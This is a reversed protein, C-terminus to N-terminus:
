QIGTAKSTSVQKVSEYPKLLEIIESNGKERAWWFVSYVVDPSENKDPVVGHSLLKRLIEVNGKGVAQRLADHAFPLKGAGKALLLDVIEPREYFVATELARLSDGLNTESAGRIDAGKTLLLECIEKHGAEIAFVLPAGDKSKNVDAGHELLFEVTQQHGGAASATLATPATRAVYELHAGIDDNQPPVLEERSFEVSGNVDAGLFLLWRLKTLDSQRAASVFAKQRRARIAERKKWALALVALLLILVGVVAPKRISQM